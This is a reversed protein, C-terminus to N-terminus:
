YFKLSSQRLNECFYFMAKQTMSYRIAQEFECSFFLFFPISNSARNISNMIKNSNWFSFVSIKNKIMNIKCMVLTVHFPTQSNSSPLIHSIISVYNCTQQILPSYPNPFFNTPTHRHTNTPIYTIVEIM